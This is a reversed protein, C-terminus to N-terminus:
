KRRKQEAIIKMYDSLNPKWKARGALGALEFDGQTKLYKEYSDKKGKAFMAKRQSDKM